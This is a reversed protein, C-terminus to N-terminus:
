LIKHEWILPRFDKQLWAHSIKLQTRKIEQLLKQEKMLMHTNKDTHRDTHGGRLANIVLSM